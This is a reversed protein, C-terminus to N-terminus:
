LRYSRYSSLKVLVVFLFLFLLYFISITFIYLSFILVCLGDTGISSGTKYFVVFNDFQTVMLYLDFVNDRIVRSDVGVKIQVSM